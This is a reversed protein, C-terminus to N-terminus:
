APFQSLDPQTLVARLGSEASAPTTIVALLIGTLFFFSLFRRIMTRKMYPYKLAFHVRAWSGDVMTKIM